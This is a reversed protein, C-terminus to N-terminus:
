QESSPRAPKVDRWKEKITTKGNRINVVYTIDICDEGNDTFLIYGRRSPKGGRLNSSHLEIRKRKYTVLTPNEVIGLAGGLMTRTIWLKGDKDLEYDSMGKGLDYTQFCPCEKLFYPVDGPLEM